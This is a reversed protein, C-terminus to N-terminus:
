DDIRNGTRRDRGKEVTGSSSQSNDKLMFGILHDRHYDDPNECARKIEGYARKFLEQDNPSFRDFQQAKLKTFYRFYNDAAKTNGCYLALLAILRGSRFTIFRNKSNKFLEVSRQHITKLQDEAEAVQGQGMLVEALTLRLTISHWDLEPSSNLKALITSAEIALQYAQVVFPLSRKVRFIENFRDQLSLRRKEQNALWTAKFEPHQLVAPPESDADQRFLQKQTSAFLCSPCITVKCHNYDIFDFGDASVRYIPIGFINRASQLSKPKLKFHKVVEQSNCVFCNLNFDIIANVEQNPQSVPVTPTGRKPGPSTTDPDQPVVGDSDDATFTITSGAMAQSFVLREPDSTTREVKCRAILPNKDAKWRIGQRCWDVLQEYLDPSFNCLESLHKLYALEQDELKEDASIILMVEFYIRLLIAAPLQPPKSLPPVKRHRVMDALRQQHDSDPSIGIAMKLFRVESADLLEDSMITAVLTEAYWNRQEPSLRNIPVARNTPNADASLLEMQRTKWALGERCWGMLERFYANTFGFEKAVDTLFTQEEETFDADAILVLCLEIFVAALITPAVGPPRTIPPSRRTAIRNMLEQKEEPNKIFRVIEKIFETEPQSIEQDALIAAVLMEAYWFRQTKTLAKCPMSMSAEDPHGM